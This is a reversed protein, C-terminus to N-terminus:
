GHDLEVNGRVIQRRIGFFSPGSRRVGTIVRAVESLNTYPQGHYIFGDPVVNVERTAGGWSRVLRTGAKIRSQALLAPNRGATVDQSLKRLQSRTALALGGFAQEQIRYALCDVMVSRRGRFPVPKGFHQLWLAKLQPVSLDNLSEINYPDIRPASDIPKPPPPKAM